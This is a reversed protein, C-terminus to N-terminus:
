IDNSDFIVLPMTFQIHKTPLGSFSHSEYSILYDKMWMKASAMSGTYVCRANYEV